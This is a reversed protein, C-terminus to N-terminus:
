RRARRRRLALVVLGLALPAGALGGDRSGAVCGCGGGGEDKPDDVGPDEQPPCDPDPFEGPCDLWCGDGAACGACDPDDNLWDPCTGDCLGNAMCACDPDPSECDALCRDDAGCSPPTEAWTVFEDIWDKYTIVDTNGGMGALCSDETGFSTIGALVEGTEFTMFNPGGSDGYCGSQGNKPTYYWVDGDVSNFTVTGQRKRGSDDGDDVATGFGVVRVDQGQMEGGLPRENLPIPNVTSPEKLALIGIDFPGGEYMPHGRLAEVEAVTGSSPDTADTGFFVTTNEPTSGYLCHAATLVVKPRILTGTCFFFGGDMLAVVAPDGEDITGAIVPARQSGIDIGEDAVCGALVTVGLVVTRKVQM